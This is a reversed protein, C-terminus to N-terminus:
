TSELKSESIDDHLQSSASDFAAYVLKRIRAAALVDKDQEQATATTTTSTAMMKDIPHRLTSKDMSAM